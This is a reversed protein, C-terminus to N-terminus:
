NKIIKENLLITKEDKLISVYYMGTSILENLDISKTSLNTEVFENNYVLRGLVDRVMVRYTGESKFQIFLESTFPNPYIIPKTNECELKINSIITLKGDFDVQKLRYYTMYSSNDADRVEYESESSITGNGSVRAVAEWNVGDESKEVLFYDNNEESKTKWTLKRSFEDICEGNFSILKVPLPTLLYDTSGLTFFFGNDTTLNNGDSATFNTQFYAINTANNFSVPSYATAGSTFDGDEDVLLRLNSLDNNGNVNSVGPVSSLDFELMVDGVNGTEQSKWHRQFIKEIIQGNDTAYNILTGNSQSPLGNHGWILSSEDNMLQPNSFDTGNSITVLDDFNTTSSGNVSHSKRQDLVSVDSRSIGAIDYAYGSNSTANWIVANTASNYDMAVGNVGLTVGYKIALYTEVIHFEAANLKKDWIIAETYSNSNGFGPWWGVALEFTTNSNSFTGVNAMQMKMGNSTNEGSLGSEGRMGYINMNGDVYNPNYADGVAGGSYTVGMGAHRFGFSHWQNAGNGTSHFALSLDQGGDTVVFMTVEDGSILDTRNPVTQHFTGAYNGALKIGDHFNLNPQALNLQTGATSTM